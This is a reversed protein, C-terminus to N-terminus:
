FANSVEWTEADHEHEFNKPANDSVYLVSKHIHEVRALVTISASRTRTEKYSTLFCGSCLRFNISVCSRVWIFEDM